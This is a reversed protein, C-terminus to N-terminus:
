AARIEGREISRVSGADCRVRTETRLTLSFGCRTIHVETHRVLEETEAQANKMDTTWKSAVLHLDFEPAAVVERSSHRSPSCQLDRSGRRVDPHSSASQSLRSLSPTNASVIQSGLPTLDPRYIRWSKAGVWM